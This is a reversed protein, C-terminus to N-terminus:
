FNGTEQNCNESLSCCNTRTVKEDAPDFPPPFKMRLDAIEGDTAKGRWAVTVSRSRISADSVHDTRHTLTLVRHVPAPKTLNVDGVRYWAKVTQPKRNERLFHANTWVTSKTAPRDVAFPIM